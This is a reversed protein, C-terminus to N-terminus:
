VLGAFHQSGHRFAAMERHIREILMDFLADLRCSEGSLRRVTLSIRGDADIQGLLVRGLHSPIDLTLRLDLTHVATVTIQVM